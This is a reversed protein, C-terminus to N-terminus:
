TSKVAELWEDVWGRIWSEQVPQLEMLKSSLEITKQMSLELSLGRTAGGELSMYFDVLRASPAERKQTAKDSGLSVKLMLTTILFDASEDCPLVRVTDKSLGSEEIAKQITPLLSTWTASRPYVVHYVSAGSASSVDNAPSLLLEVLM